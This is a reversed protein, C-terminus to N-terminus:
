RVPLEAPVSMCAIGGRQDGAALISGDSSWALSTIPAQTRAQAVVAEGKVTAGILVNGSSFGAAVYNRLPHAAVATVTAGFVFGIEVPPRGGPGSGAFSWATVVDSGSCVLMDDSSMWDMQHTKRQYGGMRLDRMTVLDWIHLEKEQTASVVYRNDPSWTVGIHAGKWELRHEVSGGGLEVLSVGGYHALAVRKGDRDFVVQSISHDLDIRTVIEGTEPAVAVCSRGAAIAVLGAKDHVAISEIWDGDTSWLLGGSRPEDFPTVIVTGDQGSSVFADRYARVDVAAVRHREHLDVVPVGIACRRGSTSALTAPKLHGMGLQGNGLAVAFAHGENAFAVANINAPVRTTATDVLDCLVEAGIDDLVTNNAVSSM